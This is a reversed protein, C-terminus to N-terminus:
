DLGVNNVSESCTWIAAVNKLVRENLFLRILRHEALSSLSQMSAYRLNKLCLTLYRNGYRLEKCMMVCCGTVRGFRKRIPFVGTRAGLLPGSIGFTAPMKGLRELQDVM